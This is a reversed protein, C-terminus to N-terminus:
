LDLAQQVLKPFAKLEGALNLVGIAGDEIARKEPYCATNLIIVPVHSTKPDASLVKCIESGSFEPILCDIFILDPRIRCALDYCDIGQRVTHINYPKGTHALMAKILFHTNPDSDAIIIVPPTHRPPKYAAGDQGGGIEYLGVQKKFKDDLDITINNLKKIFYSVVSIHNEWRDSSALEIKEPSAPCLPNEPDLYGRTIEDLRAALEGGLKVVSRPFGRDKVPKDQFLAKEAKMVENIKDAANLLESLKESMPKFEGGAAALTKHLLRLSGFIAGRQQRFYAESLSIDAFAMEIFPPLLCCRAEVILACKLSNLDYERGRGFIDEYEIKAAAGPAGTGRTEPPKTDQKPPKPQPRPQGGQRSGPITKLMTRIRAVMAKPDNPRKQWELYIGPFSTEPTEIPRPSGTWMLVPIKRLREDKEMARLVGYGDLVPMQLNLVLLDVHECALVKLGEWGNDAILVRFEKNEGELFGAGLTLIDPNDEVLLLTRQARGGTDKEM